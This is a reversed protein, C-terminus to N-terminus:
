CSWRCYYAAGLSISPSSTVLVYPYTTVIPLKLMMALMPGTKLMPLTPEVRIM